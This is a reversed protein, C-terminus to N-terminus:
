NIFEVFSLFRKLIATAEARTANQAPVFMQKANGQLIGAAASIGVADKAWAHISAGDNFKAAVDVKGAKELKGTMTLARTIMVAVQERTIQADPRFSGDEFGEILGAKVAAGVVGAYWAKADVDKFTLGSSNEKLGLSRVLLASFEARTISQDPAFNTASKGQVILKSALLEVDAKAWHKTMDEFSKNFSVVAYQSNSNRKITIITENNGAKFVAPVFTLQNTSPDYSVVTTTASSVVSDLTITREVFTNGFGNVEQSKGNAQAVVTYEIPSVLLQGNLEKVKNSLENATEGNMVEINVSIMLEETKVGLVEALKMMDIVSVPLDYSYQGAHVSVITNQKAGILAAAPLQFSIVGDEVNPVNVQVKNTGNAGAKQVAEKLADVQIAVTTVTTGQANTEKMIQNSPVTITVVEGPKTEGPKTEPLTNDDPSNNNDSPVKVPKGKLDTIRGETSINVTGVRELHELFVEYDPMFLEYIRGDKRVDRLAYYFDGGSATFSNTALMYYAEPDLKTYKGDEGKIQVEVIRSGNFTIKEAQTDLTQKAKTSDFVYKMGSVHAFGGYEAPAGSVGNELAAILEKGTVKLAVISNDFPLVTRVEGLTIDGSTIGERIGGGNQLAIYGKIEALESSPLLSTIKEKMAAAMGDTILNGLNTEQRRVARQLKGDIMANYDLNVLSRGVVQSQMELLEAKYVALKESAAKDEAFGKVEILRGDWAKLVGNEDFTADIVGLNDGYEGTQVIITPEGNVHKVVPKPLKTHSHGGVIIDIGEVEDALIEDFSYGLHTIAIIKNIGQEKLSAVSAKARAIYDQFVLTDGPSSIGVTEETTLGFVGVQEGNIDLVISPYIHADEIPANLGGIENKFLKGLGADGSYDINSSVIPFAAKKIFKEFGAPGKDFEHNGPAMADYRAMNMFELDAMGEFKTFYLTGSFVDGADLLISHDNRYENIATIRKAVNDLHAHTDNTHLVRLQFDGESPVDKGKLDIQAILPDHDSARGRSLPFDANIHVIDAESSLALNNSVLIHDLTQSNGDYTYSYRNNLPLTDILNVMENGKLISLTETFQFDNLDGVVVVNADSNKTVVDKVFGNVINAIKHRQIESSLVPPQINGFPANDGGKSNFHNVVAIVQEGNFEFQAVLPKRSSNFATNTPEIRGPNVNLKGSAADYSVAKTATGAEGSISDTMKVRDPNYLFAVRINGGPEGGDQKNQPAIETYKYTPGGAAIVANIITAYSQDAAVNGNDVPGNNDQIELLAVIDPSKLNNVISDGIRNIKEQPAGPHFNEVNYSAITLKDSDIELTTTQREFPSREISPLSDKSPIIKFNGNNYGVVGIVDNKFVDGTGVEQGPDGYAIILRQPNYNLNEKLILGGAPTIVDAVENEVRTAINYIMSNGFGSTWYPSIITPTPLKVLMGELSEYFDIADTDPNFTAMGDSSIVSTPLARGGKGLLIPEPLPNNSSLVTVKINTLQTTTLNTALGENYEEVKGSISVLDGVKPKTAENTSYVYVASSAKSTNDLEMDQIYFGRYAGTAFQSSIQTVVGEVDKVNQNVYPSTHGEGQIDQIRPNAKVARYEFTYVTSLVNGKVAIAKITTDKDVVIPAVYKTSNENPTSGNTTYYITAASDPTSLTVQNGIAITGADPSAQVSFMNEILSTSDLPILQFNGNYEEIVGIVKEYKKGPQISPFSSYIDFEETSGEQKAKFVTGSKRDIIVNEIYVLQAEHQKGNEKSLDSVTVLKADPVGADKEVVVSTLGNQPKLEHLGSFIEMVGQVSVKDGLNADPISMGYLVIGGTEDQIYTKAGNIHSIVGETWVNRDKPNLRAESIDTKELISYDFVSGVSNDLGDLSAYTYISVNDSLVIPESYLSFLNDPSDIAYYISAGATASSLTIETGIPWANSAPSAEVSAAAPSDESIGQIQIDAIRSNGTPKVIAPSGTISVNSTNLWRIYVSSQNEVEAPLSYAYTQISDTLEVAAIDHYDDQDGTLSYQVSFEKPSTGSGYAKYTLDLDVVNTTDINVQWYGNEIDWGSAYITKNGSTYTLARNNSIEISSTGKNAANGGTAKLNDKSPFVWEAVLDKAAAANPLLSAPLYTTFIIAIILMLSIWKKNVNKSFSM